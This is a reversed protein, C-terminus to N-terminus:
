KPSRNSAVIEFSVSVLDNVFVPLRVTFASTGVFSQQGADDHHKHENQMRLKGFWLPQRCVKRVDTDLNWRYIGGGHFLVM